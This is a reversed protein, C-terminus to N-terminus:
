NGMMSLSVSCSNCLKKLKSLVVLAFEVVPEVGDFGVGGVGGNEEDGGVGILAIWVQGVGIQFPVIGFNLSAVAEAVGLPFANFVQL